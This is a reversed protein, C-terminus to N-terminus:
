LSRNHAILLRREAEAAAAALGRASGKHDAAAAPMVFPRPGSM